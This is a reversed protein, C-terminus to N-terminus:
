APPPSRRARVHNLDVVVGPPEDEPTGVARQVADLLESRDIPWRLYAAREGFLATTVPDSGIAVIPRGAGFYLSMLDIGSTGEYVLDSDLRLDLVIATAPEVLPCWGKRGGICEYRPARPGPCVTVEYGADELWAGYREAEDRDAEVLLIQPPGDTMDSAGKGVTLEVRDDM